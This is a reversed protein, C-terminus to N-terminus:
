LLRWESPSLWRLMDHLQNFASRSGVGQLHIVDAERTLLFMATGLMKLFDPENITVYSPITLYPRQLCVLDGTPKLGCEPCVLVVEQTAFM